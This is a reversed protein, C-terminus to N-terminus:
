TRLVARRGCPEGHNPNLDTRDVDLTRFFVVRQLETEPIGPLRRINYDPLRSNPCGIADPNADFVSLRRM